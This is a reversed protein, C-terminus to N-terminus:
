LMLIVCKVNIVIFTLNQKRMGLRYQKVYIAFATQFYYVVNLVNHLYIKFSKANVVSFRKFTVCVTLKMISAIMITVFLVGMARKANIAGFLHGVNVMIVDMNKLLVISVM